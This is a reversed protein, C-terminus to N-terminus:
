RIGGEPEVGMLESWYSWFGRIPTETVRHELDSLPGLGGMEVLSHDLTERRTAKQVIEIAEGDEMSVLGAPGVLNASILRHRVMEETDDEYGFLTQFIEHSDVGKPRIQRSSLSNNIQIIIANPFFTPTALNLGDAFEPRYDLIKLDSLRMRDLEVGKIGAYAETAQSQTDSNSFAYNMNHRHRDDMRVGGKQTARDVGYTVFFEHLLSAHYTDRLNEAYLKWNGQIHQRTYGLIKIPKHMFRKIMSTGFEGLYSEISEAEDSFTGFLVGHYNALRLAKPHHAQVDFDAPMGGQGKLGRRFPVGELKGQTSYSWRHYICVHSTKCHGAVERVIQAGRHSCRNVFAHLQGDKDRSVVVQTDGVWTTRFDGPNPVEAEFALYSWCKGRFVQEMERQYLEPDHYVSFPIRSYDKRPWDIKM